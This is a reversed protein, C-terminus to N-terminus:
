KDVQRDRAEYGKMVQNRALRCNNWLDGRGRRVTQDECIPHKERLQILWYDISNHMRYASLWKSKLIIKEMNNM